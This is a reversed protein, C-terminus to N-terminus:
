AQRLQLLVFRNPLGELRAGDPIKMYLNGLNLGRLPPKVEEHGNVAGAFKGTNFQVFDGPFLFRCLEQASQGLSQRIGNMGHQGAIANLKGVPFLILVGSFVEKIADAARKGDFV